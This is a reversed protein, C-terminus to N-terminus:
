INTITHETLEPKFVNWNIERVRASKATIALDEDTIVLTDGLNIRDGPYDFPLMRNLDVFTCKYETLADKIQMLQDFTEFWLALQECNSTFNQPENVPCEAFQVADVYFTAAQAGSQCIKIVPTASPPGKTWIDWQIWKGVVLDSELADAGQYTDLFIAVKSVPNSPGLIVNVKVRYYKASSIGALTQKIGGDNNTAAVGQSKSGNQIYAATTNEICTPSGSKTWDACLGDTYTGDLFGTKVLNIASGYRSNKYVDEIVGNATQSSGAPLFSVEVGASTTIVIKDGAAAGTLTGTLTLTDRTTTHACDAIVFSSGALVGTVFKAKYNTNWSDNEPVLKNHDVTVVQGVVSYVVHRAGAITSEPQGGGVGYLKNVAKRDQRSTQISKLNRGSRIQTYNQSGMLGFAYLLVTSGVESIDYEGNSADLIKQLASGVSEWSIQVSIPTTPEKTTSGVAYVVGPSTGAAMHSLVVGLAYAPTVGSFDYTAKVLNNQMAVLSIHTGSIQLCPAGATSRSKTPKNLLFTQYDTADDLNKVRGRANVVWLLASKDEGDQPIPYTVSISWEGNIVRRIRVMCEHEDLQAVKVGASNLIELVYSM